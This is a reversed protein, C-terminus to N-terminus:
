VAPQIWWVGKETPISYLLCQFCPPKGCRVKEGRKTTHVLYIYTIFATETYPTSNFRTAVHMICPSTWFSRQCSSSTPPIEVTHLNGGTPIGDCIEVPPRYFLPCFRSLTTQSRGVLRVQAPILRRKKKGKKELKHKCMLYNEKKKEFRDMKQIFQNSRSTKM